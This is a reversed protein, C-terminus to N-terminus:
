GSWAVMRTWSQETERTQMCCSLCVKGLEDDGVLVEIPSLKDELGVPAGVTVRETGPLHLQDPITIPKM